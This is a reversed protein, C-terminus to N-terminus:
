QKDERDITRKQRANSSLVSSCYRAADTDGLLQGQQLKQAMKVGTRLIAAQVEEDSYNSLWTIFTQSPPVKVSEAMTAVWLEKFAKLRDLIQLTM